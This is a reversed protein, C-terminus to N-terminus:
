SPTAWDDDGFENTTPEESMRYESNVPNSDTDCSFLLLMLVILWKFM